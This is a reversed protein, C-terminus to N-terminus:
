VFTIVYAPYAAAPNQIIHIEPSSMSDVSSHYRHQGCRVPLVGHNDADGLCPLGTTLLCLLMRRTGNPQPHAFGARAVYKADRAFYSGPGWISGARTGSALPQFGSIPNSIIADIAQTGHFAWRTHVGKEFSVDQSGIAAKIQEYYPLFSGELQMENQVREISVIGTNEWPTPDPYVNAEPDIPKARFITAVRQFEESNSPVDVLMRGNDIPIWHRRFQNVSYGLWNEAALRDSSLQCLWSRMLCLEPEGSIAADILRPLCDYALLSAMNHEDGQRTYGGNVMGSNATYYLFCRNRSGTSVLNELDARSRPWVKDNSGHALVVPANQPFGLCSPHANILLSPGTWQATQWLALLYLGGKSAAGVLDPQFEDIAARVEGLASAMNFGPVEPNPPFVCKVQFGAQFVNAIQDKNLELGFGPGIILVRKQSRANQRSRPSPPQVNSCEVSNARLIMRRGRLGLSQIGKESLSAVSQAVARIEPYREPPVAGGTDGDVIRVDAVTSGQPTAIDCQEVDVGVDSLQVALERMLGRRSTCVLHLITAQGDPAAALRITEIETNCAPPVSNEKEDGERAPTAAFVEDQLDHMRDWSKRLCASSSPPKPSKDDQVKPGSLVLNRANVQVTPSMNQRPNNLEVSWLGDHFGTAVGPQLALQPDLEMYADVVVVPSQPEIQVMQLNDPSSQELGGAATVLMLQSSNTGDIGLVVCCQGVLDAKAGTGVRVQSGGPFQAALAAAQM